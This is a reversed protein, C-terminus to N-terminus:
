WRGDYEDSHFIHQAHSMLYVPKYHDLLDYHLDKGGQLGSFRSTEVTQTKNPVNAFNHLVVANDHRDIRGDTRGRPVVRNGNFPYEHFKSNPYKKFIQWFELKM